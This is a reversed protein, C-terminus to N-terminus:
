EQNRSPWAAISEFARLYGLVMSDWSFTHQTYTQFANRTKESTDLTVLASAWADANKSPLLYGNKEHHIASPIGEIDAAMVVAGHVAAELCVLGFGEMDGNVSINPMVFANAQRFLSVLMSYPQLGLHHVDPDEQIIKRLAATDSPYGLFLMIKESISSPLLRLVREIGDPKNKFPGVMVVQFENRIKPLVAQIFWSFGKRRVPRGLMVLIKKTGLDPLPPTKSTFATTDVGNPVFVVKRADLGAQTAVKATAESVAIIKDYRNLRPLLYKQYLGLPFTVDLGHLTVARQLHSYATHFSCFTGLLGDNFHILSIGPHSQLIKKIRSQLKWFFATISEEGTYVLAHVTAWKKMGEILEFSQKEMGGTSPPYKHSVFLIEM